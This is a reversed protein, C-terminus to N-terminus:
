RWREDATGTESRWAAADLPASVRSSRAPARTMRTCPASWAPITPAASMASRSRTARCRRDAHRDASGRDARADGDGDRPGVNWTTPAVIQYNKIKGGQSTSGTACRAACRRPRAGAAATASSRSSTGPITSASSACPLARGRPLARGARAHARFPAADRQRRRAQPVHRAGAPRHHQWAEGHTGGAVAPARAAGAELRGHEAHACRPRGPIAAPSIPRSQPRVPTTVRDFPHVVAPSTTGPTRPTRARRPRTWRCTRTPMATTSAARAHDGRRRAGDITPKNYKDEHPLYGWSSIAASPRARLADLGIDQSMRWYLGLDSNAHEPKEDLWALFDDYSRIEEYREMSCGLWVPEIWNRRFHELISWARTVDTLTPACMVGGPVMYSSHPWQGGFLAYIEVPRGSITVGIEYNTGTYPAWRRM